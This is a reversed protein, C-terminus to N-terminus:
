NKIAKIKQASEVSKIATPSKNPLTLPDSNYKYKKPDMKADALLEVGHKPKPKPEPELMQKIQEIQEKFKKLNTDLESEKSLIMKTNKVYNSDIISDTMKKAEIRLESENLLSLAPNYTPNKFKESMVLQQRLEYDLYEAIPKYKLETEYLKYLCNLIDNQNKTIDYIKKIYKNIYIRLDTDLTYTYDKSNIKTKLYEDNFIISNNRCFEEIFLEILSPHLYNLSKIEYFRESNSNMTNRLAESDSIKENSTTSTSNNNGISLRNSQNSIVLSKDDTKQSSLDPEDCYIVFYKKYSIELLTILNESYLNFCILCIIFILINKLIALPNINNEIIKFEVRFIEKLYLLVLLISIINSYYIYDFINLSYLNSYINKVLLISFFLLLLNFIYYYFAILNKEKIEQQRKSIYFFHISKILSFIRILINFNLFTFYLLVL